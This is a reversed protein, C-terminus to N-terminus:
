SNPMVQLEASKLNDEWSFALCAVMINIFLDVIGYIIHAYGDWEDMM